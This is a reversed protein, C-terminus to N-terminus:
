SGVLFGVAEVRSDTVEVPLGLDLEAVSANGERERERVVASM